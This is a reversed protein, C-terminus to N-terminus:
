QCQRYFSSTVASNGCFLLDHGDACAQGRFKARPFSWFAIGADFPVGLPKFVCHGHILLWLFLCIFSLRGLFSPVILPFRLVTCGLGYLDIWSRHFIIENSAKFFRGSSINGSSFSPSISFSPELPLSSLCALSRPPLTFHCQLFHGVNSIPTDTRSVWM